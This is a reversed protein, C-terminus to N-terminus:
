IFLMYSGLSNVAFLISLTIPYYEFLLKFHFLAYVILTLCAIRRNEQFEGRIALIRYKSYAELCGCV